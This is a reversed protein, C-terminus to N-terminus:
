GARKFIWIGLFLFVTAMFLGFDNFPPLLSGLESTKWALYAIFYFSLSWYAAERGAAREYDDATRERILSMPVAIGLLLVLGAIAEGKSITFDGDMFRDM